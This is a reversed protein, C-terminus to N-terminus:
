PEATNVLPRPEFSGQPYVLDNVGPYFRRTTEEVAITRMRFAYPPLEWPAILENSEKLLSLTVTAVAQIAGTATAPRREIAVSEVTFYFALGNRREVVVGGKKKFAVLFANFDDASDLEYVEDVEKEYNEHVRGRKELRYLLKWGM